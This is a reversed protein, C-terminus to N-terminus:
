QLTGPVCTVGGFYDENGGLVGVEVDGAAQDPHTVPSLADRQVCNRLRVFFGHLAQRLSSIVGIIHQHIVIRRVPLSM